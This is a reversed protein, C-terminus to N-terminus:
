LRKFLQRSVCKQCYEHAYGDAITLSKAHDTILSDAQEHKCKTCRWQVEKATGPELM